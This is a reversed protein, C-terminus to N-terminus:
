VVELFQSVQLPSQTTLRRASEVRDLTGPQGDKAIAHLRENGEGTCRTLQVGGRRSAVILVTYSVKV